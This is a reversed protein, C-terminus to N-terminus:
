EYLDTMSVTYTEGKKITGELMKKALFNELRDQFVRRMPRAGMEPVYGEQALKELVGTELEIDYGKGKFDAQISQFMLEAVKLIESGSLPSFVIVGDFRNLFEPKFVGTNQVEELVTEKVRQYEINDAVAKRITNAGANSTAIIIAGTLIVKEGMGDTIYGEDLAQLFLDLINPNAKEIEDLLVVSSPNTRIKKVFEGGELEESDAVKKGIFRTISDPDQFQNMDMRVIQEENGYYAWALTKALETKGVGTPGLFLFSGIPRKDSKIDTRARRLADSLATVAAFQGVVRSHMTEELKLLIDKEDRTAETVKVNLDKGAVRAVAEKDLVTVHENKAATLVNELMDVAKGPFEKETVFKETLTYIMKLAQYTVRVGYEQGMYISMEALVRLTDSKETPPVEIKTILAALEPKSEIYTQFHKDTTAGIIRLGSDRLYPLIIESADITGEKGGGAFLDQIEPVYLIINGARVADNLVGILIKELSARDAAYSIITGLNLELVRAYALGPLTTGWTIRSVVEKIITTKGVGVPGTLIVNNKSKKTLINEMESVIGTRGEVSFDGRLNGLVNYSFRDLFLTYGSDWGQAIGAAHSKLTETATSPYKSATFFKSELFFINSLDTEELELDILIQEYNENETLLGWFLDAASVLPSSHMMAKSAASALLRAGFDPAGVGSRLDNWFQESPAMESCVLSVEPTAVLDRILKGIDPTPFGLGFLLITTRFDSCQGLDFNGKMLSHKLEYSKLFSGFSIVWVSVLSLFVFIWAIKSLQEIEDGPFSWIILLFLFAIIGLTIFIKACINTARSGFFRSLKAAVLRKHDPNYTTEREM